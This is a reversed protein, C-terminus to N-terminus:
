SHTGNPSHRYVRTAENFPTPADPDHIGGLREAVKQSAINDPGVYSVITELDTAAFTHDLVARAAETAIGRGTFGDYLAWGCEPEPFHPPQVLGAFGALEDGEIIALTGFSFLAWSATDNTFWGWAKEASIPGGMGTSRESSMLDFYTDWDNRQYPRLILRETQLTPIMM